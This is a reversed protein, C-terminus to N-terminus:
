YIGNGVGIRIKPSREPDIMKMVRLLHDKSMAICGETPKDAARWIHMFIASGKGPVVPNTNYNIVVAHQYLPHNLREFSSWREQPDGEYAVWNNYDPSQPTDVWYDDAGAPRYDIQLGAPPQPSSGFATGLTYTGLPTKGDGEKTKGLGRNGLVVPIPGLQRQWTGAQKEYVYLRGTSSSSRDAAVLIIQGSGLQDLKKFLRAEDIPAGADAQQYAPISGVLLLFVMMLRIRYNM